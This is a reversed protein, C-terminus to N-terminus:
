LGKCFDQEEEEGKDEKKDEHGIDLSGTRRHYSLYGV